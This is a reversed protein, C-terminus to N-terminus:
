NIKTLIRLRLIVILECVWKDWKLDRRLGLGILGHKFRGDGRLFGEFVKM